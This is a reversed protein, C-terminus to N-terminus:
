IKQFGNYVEEPNKSLFNLLVANIQIIIIIIIIINQLFTVPNNYKVLVLIMFCKKNSSILKFDIFHLFCSPTSFYSFSFFFVIYVYKFVFHCFSM